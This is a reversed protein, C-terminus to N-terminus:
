AARRLPIPPQRRQIEWAEAWRDSLIACRLALVAEAREVRWRMGGRKMRSGVVNKCASEVTGSGIPAGLERFEQYRMREAHTRLYESFLRVEQKAGESEPELKGLAQLVAAVRGAWLEDKRASVWSSAGQTGQGFVLNAVKWLRDVVHWWDLIQLAAPYCLLILNWIWPAGDNVTTLRSAMEVGRRVAEAWQENAFQKVDWIGARYSHNTLEVPSEDRGAKKRERVESISVVKVDRWGETTNVTVGDISVCLHGTEPLPEGEKASGPEAGREGIMPLAVSELAVAKEVERLRQGALTTVEELTAASVTLGVLEEYSKAGIRYSPILSGLRAMGREAMETWPRRTLGLERDLPFFGEKCSPCYYYRRSLQVDGEPGVVVRSVEGKDQMRGGCKDCLVEGASGETERGGLLSSMVQGMLRQRVARVEEEFELLRYGRHADCWAQLEDIAAESARTLEKRVRERDVAM